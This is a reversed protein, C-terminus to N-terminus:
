RPVVVRAERPITPVPAACGDNSDSLCPATRQVVRTSSRAPPAADPALGPIPVPAAGPVDVEDPGTGAPEASPARATEPRTAGRGLRMRAPAAHTRGALRSVPQSEARQMPGAAAASVKTARRASRGHPDPSHAGPVAAFTLALAAVASAGAIGLAPLSFPAGDLSTSRGIALGITEGAGRLWRWTLPALSSARGLANRLNRRARLRLMKSAASARNSDLGDGIEALLADRQMSTLGRLAGALHSLELRALAEEEVSHVSMETFPLPRAERRAAARAEDRLLNFAITLALPELPRAPDVEDWKCFLRLGTEQVVDEREERNLRRGRLARDLVRAV